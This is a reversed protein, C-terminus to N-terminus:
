LYPPNETSQSMIQSSFLRSSWIGRDVEVKTPTCSNGDLDIPGIIPGGNKDLPIKILTGPCLIKSLHMSLIGSRIFIGVFCVNTFVPGVSNLEQIWSTM